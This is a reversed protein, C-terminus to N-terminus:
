NAAKRLLRYEALSVVKARITDDAHTIPLGVLMRRLPACCRAASAAEIERCVAAAYRQVIDSPANKM